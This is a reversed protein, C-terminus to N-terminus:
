FIHSTKVGSIDKRSVPKYMGGKKWVLMFPQIFFICRRTGFSITLLSSPHSLLFFFFSSFPLTGNGDGEVAFGRRILRKIIATFVPTCPQIITQSYVLATPYWIVDRTILKATACSRSLCLLHAGVGETIRPSILITPSGCCRRAVLAAADKNPRHSIEYVQKWTTM